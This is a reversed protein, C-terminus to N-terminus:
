TSAVPVMLLRSGCGSPEVRTVNSAGLQADELVATAEIVLRAGGENPVISQVRGLEEVIGTFM